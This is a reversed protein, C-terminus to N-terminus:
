NSGKGDKGNGWGMEEGGRSSAALDARVKFIDATFYGGVSM